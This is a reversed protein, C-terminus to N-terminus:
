EELHNLINNISPTATYITNGHEIVWRGHAPNYAAMTPVVEIPEGMFRTGEFSPIRYHDGELEKAQEIWDYVSSTEDTIFVLQVGNVKLSRRVSKMREFMISSNDDWTNWLMVFVKQDPYKSVIADLINDTTVGLPTECIRGEEHPLTASEAAPNFIRFAEQAFDDSVPILRWHSHEEDASWKVVSNVDRSPHLCSYKDSTPFEITFGDDLVESERVAFLHKPTTSTPACVYLAGPFMLYRQYGLNQISYLNEGTLGYTNNTCEFRFIYRATENDPKDPISWPSTLSWCLQLAASNAGSGIFGEPMQLQGVYAFGTEARTAQLFYYGSLGGGVGGSQPSPQHKKRATATTLGIILCLTLILIRKM